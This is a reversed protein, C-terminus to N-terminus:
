AYNFTGHEIKKVSKSEVQDIFVRNFEPDANAMMLERNLIKKRRNIGESISSSIGKESLWSDIKEASLALRSIKKVYVTNMARATQIGTYGSRLSWIAGARAHFHASLLSKNLSKVALQVAQKNQLSPVEKFDKMTSLLGSTKKDVDNSASVLKRFTARMKKTRWEEVFKSLKKGYTPLVDRARFLEKNMLLGVEHHAIAKAAKEMTRKEAPIRKLEFLAEPGLTGKFEFVTRLQLGATYEVIVKLDDHSLDSPNAGFMTSLHGHNSAVFNDLAVKFSFDKASM